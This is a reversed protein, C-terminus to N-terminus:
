ATRSLRIDGTTPHVWVHTARREHWVPGVWAEGSEEVQDAGAVDALPAAAASIAHEATGQQADVQRSSPQQAADPPAGVGPRAPLRHSDRGRPELSVKTVGLAVAGHAAAAFARAVAAQDSASKNTGRPAPGHPPARLRRLPPRSAWETEFAGGRGHGDGGAVVRGGTAHSGCDPCGASAHLITGCGCRRLIMGAAAATACAEEWAYLPQGGAGSSLPPGSVPGFRWTLGAADLIICRRKGPARRLARGM